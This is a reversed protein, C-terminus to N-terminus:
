ISWIRGTPDIPFVRDGPEPKIRYSGTFSGFAPLLAYRQNFYFCPMRVPPGIGDNLTICPHIHGGFVLHEENDLPNHCFAFVDDRHCDPVIRVRWEEPPHGSHRDHNGPVLVIELNPWRSRWQTLLDMTNACRGSRHHFFDGLILLRNCASIRLLYDLRELDDTTTGVPIPVGISRFASAKGFHPDTILLTSTREWLLGRQPFLRLREGGWSVEVCSDL